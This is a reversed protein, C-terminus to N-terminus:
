WAVVSVPVNSIVSYITDAELLFPLRVSGFRDVHVEGGPVMLERAELAHFVLNPLQREVFFTQTIEHGSRSSTGALSTAPSETRAGQAATPRKPM